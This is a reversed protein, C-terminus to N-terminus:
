EINVIRKFKVGDKTIHIIIGLKLGSTKLYSSLQSIDKNSFYNRVKLELVIKNDVIFDFFSKGVINDHFKVPYYPQEKFPVYIETFRRAISKQYINEKYGSGLEKYVDFVAGMIKYVEEPYILDKRKIQIKM